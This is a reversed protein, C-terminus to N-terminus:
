NDVFMWIISAAFIWPDNNAINRDVLGFQSQEKLSLGLAEQRMKLKLQYDQINDQSSEM